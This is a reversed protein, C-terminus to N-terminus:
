RLPPITVKEEIDFNAKLAIERIHSWIPEPQKKELVNGTDWVGNKNEDYVVRIYYRGIPLLPHNVTKNSKLIATNIIKDQDDLLQVIYSKTTDPVTILATLFGYNEKVDKTFLKTYLKNQGGYVGTLANEDISLIYKKEDKWPYRFRLIRTSLSDRSVRLGTVPLSDQLLTIKKGDITKIPASALVTVEAGPHLRGSSINDTLVLTKVYTDRKSRRIQLTDINRKNDQIAVSISDFETTNTWVSATDNTRSFEVTKSTNLEAPQLIQIGPKELSKNFVFIIKGDKDIKRDIVRFIKAKEQFITLDIGATDKTLLIPSNRFGIFEKTSNYIRDAGEEKLAYISYTNNRLYKLSYNGSSDTTTFLSARKKGFLTDQNVPLLFVTANLVP